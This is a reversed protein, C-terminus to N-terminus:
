QGFMELLLLIALTQQSNHVTLLQVTIDTSHPADYILRLTGFNDLYSEAVM